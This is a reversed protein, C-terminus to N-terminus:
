AEAAEPLPAPRRGLLYALLGVATLLGGVAAYVYVLRNTTGYIDLVGKFISGVTLAALGSNYANLAFRGPQRRRSLGIMLLPLAGMVLPVAFAYIMYYSYVEHSYREYIAGFVACFVAAALHGRAHRLTRLSNENM